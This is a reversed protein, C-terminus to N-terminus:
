LCVWVVTKVRRHCRHLGFTNKCLLSFMPFSLFVSTLTGGGARWEVRDKKQRMSHFSFQTNFRHPKQMRNKFFISPLSLPQIINPQIKLDCYLLFHHEKFTPASWSQPSIAHHCQIIIVSNCFTLKKVCIMETWSFKGWYFARLNRCTKSM